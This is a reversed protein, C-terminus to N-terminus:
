DIASFRYGKSYAFREAASGAPAYITLSAHCEFFTYYPIKGVSAPITVHRLASCGQFARSGLETLGDPLVVETLNECRYFAYEGISQLTSPLKISRLAPCYRFATRELTTLGEPLIVEEVGYRSSFANAGIGRVPYGGLEAPVVVVADEGVYSTIIVGDGAIRYQYDASAQAPEEADQVEIEYNMKCAEAYPQALSHETGTLTISLEFCSEGMEAVSDPISIRELATCGLFAGDEITELRQPLAVEALQTCGSFANMRIVTIGVSLKVSRLSTCGAFAEEGIEVIVHGGLHWPLTVERTNGLYRTIIAQGEENLTYQWDGNREDAIAAFPLLMALLVLLLKMEKKRFHTM